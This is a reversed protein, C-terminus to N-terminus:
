FVINNDINQLLSYTTYDKSDFNGNKGISEAFIYQKLWLM